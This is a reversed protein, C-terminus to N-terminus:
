VLRRTAAVRGWIAFASGGIAVIRDVVEAAQGILGIAEAQDAPSVSHGFLGALGALAAVGAGWVTRSRLISKTNQLINQM